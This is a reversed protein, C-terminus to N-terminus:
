TLLAMLPPIHNKTPHTRPTHEPKVSAARIKEENDLSQAFARCATAQIKGSPRVPRAARRPKRKGREWLTLSHCLRFLYLPYRPRNTLMVTHPIRKKTLWAHLRIATVRGATRCTVLKDQGTTPMGCLIGDRSHRLSPRCRRAKRPSM